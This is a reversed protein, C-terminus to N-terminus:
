GRELDFDRRKQPAISKLYENYDKERPPPDIMITLHPFDKGLNEKIAAMRKLGPADNDYCLFIEKTEPHTSLYQRIPIENTGSGSLRNINSWNIPDTMYQLTAHSLADVPSEFVSLTPCPQEGAPLFFGFAKDSSEVDNKFNGYTGRQSAFRTTGREDRGVFVCNHHDKSEYIIGARICTQIIEKEICRGMLYAFVRRNDRYAAPLAFPKKETNVPSTRKPPPLSTQGILQVHEGCLHLVANPLDMGQVHVLYDLATKGGFGRSCWNWYGNTSIRLSDHTRTYYENRGAQVLEDPDFTLLYTLLDWQKAKAIQEKSVYPM